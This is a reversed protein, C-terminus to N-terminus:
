GNTAPLRLSATKGSNTQSMQSAAALPPLVIASTNYAFYLTGTMWRVQANRQDGGTWCRRVAISGYLM